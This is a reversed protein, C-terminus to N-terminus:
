LFDSMRQTYSSPIAQNRAQLSDPISFDGPSSELWGWRAIQSFTHPIQAYGLDMRWRAGNAWTLRSVQDGRIANAGWLAVSNRGSWERIMFSEIFGGRPVDSFERFKAEPLTQDFWQGGLVFEGQAARAQTSMVSVVMGCALATLMTRRLTAM